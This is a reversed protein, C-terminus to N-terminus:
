YAPNRIWIRRRWGVRLRRGGVCGEKVITRWFSLCQYKVLTQWTVAGGYVIFSHQHSTCQPALREHDITKLFSQRGPILCNWLQGLSAWSLPFLRQKTPPAPTSPFFPSLRQRRRSRAKQSRHHSAFRIILVEFLATLTKLFFPSYFHYITAWLWKRPESCM